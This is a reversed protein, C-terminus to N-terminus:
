EIQVWARVAERIVESRLLHERESRAKLADMLAGDIPVALVEGRNTGSTPRGRKHLTEVDYDTEAEDAWKRIAEDSVFLTGSRFLEFLPQPVVEDNSALDDIVDDVLHVLSELAHNQHSDLWSLGPFELVTAIHEGDDPSWQVRYNYHRADPRTVIGGKGQNHCADVLGPIATRM